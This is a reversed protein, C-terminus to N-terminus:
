KIQKSCFSCLLSFQEKGFAFWSTPHTAWHSLSPGTHWSGPNLGLELLFLFCFIFVYWTYMPWTISKAGLGHSVARFLSLYIWLKWVQCNLYPFPLLEFSQQTKCKSFDQLNIVRYSSITLITKQKKSSGQLARALESSLVMSRGGAQQSESSTGGLSAKVKQKNHTALLPAWQRPCEPNEGHM